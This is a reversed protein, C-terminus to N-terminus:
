KRHDNKGGVGRTPRTKTKKNEKKRRDSKREKKGM